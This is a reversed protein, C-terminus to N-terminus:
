RDRVFVWHVPGQSVGAPNFEESLDHLNTKEDLYMEQTWTRTQQGEVTTRGKVHVGDIDATASQYQKTQSESDEGVIHEVGDTIMEFTFNTGDPIVQYMELKQCGTQTFTRQMIWHGFVSKTYHGSLDLCEAALTPISAMLALAFFYKRM